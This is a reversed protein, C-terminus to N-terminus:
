FPIDEDEPNRGKGSTKKGRPRDDPEDRDDRDDNEEYEEEDRARVKGRPREEREEDRGRAKERDSKGTGPLSKTRRNAAAKKPSKVRIAPTSKGAFDVMTAFLCIEEGAWDDTEDGYLNEIVNSNTKNLVLGKDVKKFYLIPLEKQDDGQGVEEIEVRDMVLVVDNDGLDGAKLYKSPFAASMRM